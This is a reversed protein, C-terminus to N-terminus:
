LNEQNSDLNKLNEHFIEDLNDFRKLRIIETLLNFWQENNKVNIALKFPNLNKTKDMVIWLYLFNCSVIRMDKDKNFASEEIITLPLEAQTLQLGFSSELM